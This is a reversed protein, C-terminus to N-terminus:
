AQNDKGHYSEVLVEYLLAAAFRDIGIPNMDKSLEDIVRRADKRYQAIQKESKPLSLPQGLTGVRLVTFNEGQDQIKVLSNTKLGFAKNAM